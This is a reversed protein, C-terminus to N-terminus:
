FTTVPYLHPSHCYNALQFPHFSSVAQGNKPLFHLVAKLKIAWLPFPHLVYESAAHASVREDNTQERIGEEALIEEM